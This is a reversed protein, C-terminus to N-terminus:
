YCYDALYVTSAHYIWYQWTSGKKGLKWLRAKDLHLLVEAALSSPSPANIWSVSTGCTGFLDEDAGDHSVDENAGSQIDVEEGFRDAYMKKIASEVAQQDDLVYPLTRYDLASSALFLPATWVEAFRRRVNEELSKLEEPAPQLKEFEALMSNLGPLLLSLTPSAEEQLRITFRWIPGLMAIFVNMAEADAEAIRMPTGDAYRWDLEFCVENFERRIELLRNFVMAIYNWRTASPLVLALKTKEAMKMTALHSHHFRSVLDFMKRSESGKKEFVNKVSNQLRHASCKIHRLSNFLDDADEVADDVDDAEDEENLQGANYCVVTEEVEADEEDGDIEFELALQQALADERITVFFSVMDTCLGQKELCNRICRAIYEGTHRERLHMIDLAYTLPREAKIDFVHVMLLLFSLRNNRTTGIDASISLGPSKKILQILVKLMEDLEEKMLKNLQYNIGREEETEQEFKDAYKRAGETQQRREM